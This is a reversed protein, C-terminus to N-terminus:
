RLVPSKHLHINVWIWGGNTTNRYEWVRTESQQITVPAKGDTTQQILKVYSLVAGTPVAAAAATTQQRDGDSTTNININTNTSTASGGIWQVHPQVM